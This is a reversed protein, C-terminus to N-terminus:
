CDEATNNKTFGASNGRFKGEEECNGGHETRRNELDCFETEAERHSFKNYEKDSHNRCEGNRENSDTEKHIIDFLVCKGSETNVAYNETCDNQRGVKYCFLPPM